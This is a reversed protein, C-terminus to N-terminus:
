AGQRAALGARRCSAAQHPRTAGAEQQKKQRLFDGEEDSRALRRWGYASKCGGVQRVLVELEDGLRIDSKAAPFPLYMKSSSSEPKRQAAAAQGFATVEFVLQEQEGVLSVFTLM